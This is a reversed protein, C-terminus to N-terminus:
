GKTRTTPIQTCTCGKHHPMAHTDPWLQGDRWWWRCLQCANASLGRVWGDVLPQAKIAKSYARAGAGIPEIRALRQVRMLMDADEAPTNLIERISRALVTGGSRVTVGTAPVATGTALTLTAALSYDALAAAKLNAKSILSSMTAIAQTKTIRGVRYLEFIKTAKVETADGLGTLKETYTM